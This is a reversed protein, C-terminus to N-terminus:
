NLINRVSNRTQALPQRHHCSKRACCRFAVSCASTNCSRLRSREKRWYGKLLGRASGLAAVSACDM